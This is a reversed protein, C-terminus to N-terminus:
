FRSIMYGGWSRMKPPGPPLEQPGPAPKPPGPPPKKLRLLLLPKGSSRSISFGGGPGGFGAGPGCFGGGPGGLILDYPPYM